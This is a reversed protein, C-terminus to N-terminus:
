RFICSRLLCGLGSSGVVNEEYLEYHKQVTWVIRFCALEVNAPLQEEWSLWSQSNVKVEVNCAEENSIGPLVCAALRAREM